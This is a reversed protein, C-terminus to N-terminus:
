ITGVSLKTMCCMVSGKLVFWPVEGPKHTVKKCKEVEKPLRQLLPSVRKRKFIFELPFQLPFSHASFLLFSILGSTLLSLQDKNTVQKIYLLIYIPKGSSETTFFRGALALSVPEIGSGPLDGPSPFPLGSQYEQRPFRMSLPAQRVVTWPNCFCRVRSLSQVAVVLHTYTLGLRGLQSISLLYPRMTYRLPVRSLVMYHRLHSFFRSRCTHILSENQQVGLVLLM